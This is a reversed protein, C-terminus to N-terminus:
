GDAAGTLRMGAKVVSQVANNFIAYNSGMRCVEHFDRVQEQVWVLSCQFTGAHAGIKGDLDMHPLGTGLICLREGWEVSNKCIVCKSGMRCVDQFDRVHKLGSKGDLDMHLWGTGLICLREGWEVSTNSILYKSRPM